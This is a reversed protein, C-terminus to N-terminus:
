DPCVHGKILEASPEHSVPTHAPGSGFECRMGRCAHRATSVAPHGTGRRVGVPHRRPPEAPRISLASTWVAVHDAVRLTVWDVSARRLTRLPKASSRGCTAPCNKSAAIPRSRRTHSSSASVDLAAAVMASVTASSAATRRRRRASRARRAPRRRGRRGLRQIFRSATGPAARRRRQRRRRQARGQLPDVAERARSVKARQAPSTGRRDGQGAAVRERDMAIFARARPTINDADGVGVGRLHLGPHRPSTDSPGSRCRGRRCIATPSASSVRSVISAGKAGAEVTTVVARRWATMAMAAPASASRPM